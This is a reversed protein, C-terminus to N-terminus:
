ANSKIKTLLEEPTGEFVIEDDSEYHKRIAKIKV